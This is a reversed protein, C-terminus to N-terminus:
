KLKYIIFGQDKPMIKKEQLLEDITERIKRKSHGLHEGIKRLSQPENYSSLFNLIDDKVSSSKAVYEGAKAVEVHYDCNGIEGMELHIDIDSFHGAMRFERSLSIVTPEQSVQDLDEDLSNVPEEVDNKLLYWASEVWGYLVISGMMRAGGKGSNQTGKNYHHILMVSTKYKNKLMLLWNLIPNVDKASNLDGEFMLYLPDLIILVPKIEAVMKELARQHEEDSLLFGQQNVFHIPLSPPFNVNVLRNSKMKVDGGLGRAAVLKETRDKMIYDSNENQIIIVPGTELVPYKGLFPKGSAISIAFDHVITSKFSKPMGAVIGHSNKGWFGKVLWGSFDGCSGMVSDYDAIKFGKSKEKTNSDIDGSIIKNLENKLRKTEDPRDKYKNFLSNRILLIIENPDMGLEHLTNEIYWITSSRDVGELSDLALLNRVKQPISYKAYIKREEISSNSKDRLPAKTEPRVNVTKALNKPKYITRTKTPMEVSPSNKYKHNKTGPIRYVHTYDFCDDCGIYKALAKNLPTYETEKIYRDLEWLGQYKNPSSEWIYSPKPELKSIDEYEDIDQALFKTELANEIKRRDNKYPMPSWYLDYEEKPYRKFFNELARQISNKGYMIPVDLWKIRPGKVSLIVYDGDECQQDYINHLFSVM